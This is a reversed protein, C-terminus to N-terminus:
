FIFNGRNKKLFRYKLGIKSKGRAELPDFSSRPCTASSSLLIIVSSSIMLREISNKSWPLYTNKKKWKRKQCYKGVSTYKRHYKEEGHKCVAFMRWGGYFYRCSLTTWTRINIPATGFINGRFLIKKLFYMSQTLQGLTWKCSNEIIRCETNIETHFLCSQKM